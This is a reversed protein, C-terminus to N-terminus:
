GVLVDGLEERQAHGAVLQEDVGGVQRQDGAMLQLGSTGAHNGGVPSMSRAVGPGTCRQLLETAGEGLQAVSGREEQGLEFPDVTPGGAVVSPPHQREALAVLCGLEDLCQVVGEVVSGKLM